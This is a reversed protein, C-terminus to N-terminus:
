IINEGEKLVFVNKFGNDKLFGCAVPARLNNECFVVYNNELDFNNESVKGSIIDRYPINITGPLSKEFFLDRERIDILLTKPNKNKLAVYDEYSLFVNYTPEYQGGGCLSCKQNKRMTVHSIHFGDTDVVYFLKPDSKFLIWKLVLESELAALIHVSPGLVGSQNCDSFLGEQVHPFLCQLCAGEYSFLAVQGVWKDISAFVFVKKESLCYSNLLFKTKLNDTCDLILDYGSLLHHINKTNINEGAFKVVIDSNLNKLKENVVFAKNEGIDKETFHVQRHLNSLEVQDGDCIFIHGVGAAALFLACPGGLGGLGIIAVRAKRLRAQGETGVEKLKIQKEYRNTTM